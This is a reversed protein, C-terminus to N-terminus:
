LHAARVLFHSFHHSRCDRLLRRRNTSTLSSRQFHSCPEDPFILRNRTPHDDVDGNIINYSGLVCACVCVCVYSLTHLIGDIYKKFVYVYGLCVCM